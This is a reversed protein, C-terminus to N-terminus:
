PVFTNRRKNAASLPAFYRFIALPLLLVSLYFKLLGIKKELRQRRTYMPHLPYTILYSLLRGLLSASEALSKKDAPQGQEMKLSRVRQGFLRLPTRKDSAGCQM